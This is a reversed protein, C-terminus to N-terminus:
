LSIAKHVLYRAGTPRSLIRMRRGLSFVALEGHWALHPFIEHLSLNPPLQQDFYGVVLYRHRDISVVVSQIPVNNPNLFHFSTDISPQQSLHDPDIMAVFGCLRPRSAASPYHLGRTPHM